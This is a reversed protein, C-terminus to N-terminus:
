RGTTIAHSFGLLLLDEGQPLRALCEGLNSGGHAQGAAGDFGERAPFREFFFFLGLVDAQVAALPDGLSGLHFGPLVTVCLAAVGIPIVVPIFHLAFAGAGDGASVAFLLKVCM